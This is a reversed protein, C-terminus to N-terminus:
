HTYPKPGDDRSRCSHVVPLTTNSDDRHGRRAVDRECSTQSTKPPLLHEIVGASLHEDDNFELQSLEYGNSDDDIPQSACFM